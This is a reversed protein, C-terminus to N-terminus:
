SEEGAKPDTSDWLPDSKAIRALIGLVVIALAGFVEVTIIRTLDKAPVYLLPGITIGLLMGILLGRFFGERRRYSHLGIFGGGVATAVGFIIVVVVSETPIYNWDVHGLGISLILACLAVVLFLISIPYSKRSEM